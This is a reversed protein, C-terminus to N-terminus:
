ASDSWGADPCNRWWSARYPTRGAALRPARKRATTLRCNFRNMQSPGLEAEFVVRKRWEVPVNSLEKEVQTPLPRGDRCVTVESAARAKVITVIVLGFLLAALGAGALVMGAVALRRGRRPPVATNINRVAAVGVALAPLTTAGFTPLALLGLIFDNWQTPQGADAPINAVARYSYTLWPMKASEDSAAWAEAQSSDAFPDRL